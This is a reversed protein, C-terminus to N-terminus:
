VTANICRQGDMYQQHFEPWNKVMSKPKSKKADLDILVAKALCLQVCKTKNLKLEPIM